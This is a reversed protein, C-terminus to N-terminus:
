IRRGLTQYEGICMRCVDVRKPELRQACDLADQLTTRIPHWEGSRGSQGNRGKGNRCNCCDSRHVKVTNLNFNRYLWFPVIEDDNVGDDVDTEDRADDVLGEEEIRRHYRHILKIIDKTEVLRESARVKMAPTEDRRKPILCYNHYFVWYAFQRKHNEFTKSFANTRRAVRRNRARATRNVSEVNNTWFEEEGELEGVVVERSVGIFRWRTKKGDATQNSRQKNLRLYTMATGWEAEIAPKYSGHGDSVITPRVIFDGNEDRKLREGLDRISPQTSHLDNSPAALHSLIFGGTGPVVALFHLVEGDGEKRNKMRHVNERKAGCYSYYEDVEVRAVELDRQESDLFVIAMDGALRAYRAVTDDAVDLIHALHSLPTGMGLGRLIEGQKELSLVNAM